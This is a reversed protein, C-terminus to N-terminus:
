SGAHWLPLVLQKDAQRFLRGVGGVEKRYRGVAHDFQARLHRDSARRRRLGIAEPLSRRIFSPKSGFRMKKRSAKMGNLLPITAATMKATQAPWDAQASPEQSTPSRQAMWPACNPQLSKLRILRQISRLTSTLRSAASFNM